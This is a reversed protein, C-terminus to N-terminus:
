NQKLNYQELEYDSLPIFTLSFSRDVKKYDFILIELLKLEALADYLNSVYKKDSSQSLFKEKFASIPINCLYNSYRSKIRYEQLFFLIQKAIPNNIREFDDKLVSTNKRGKWSEIANFSLVTHIREKKSDLFVSENFIVAGKLADNVNIKGTKEDVTYDAIRFDPMDNLTSIIKSKLRRKELREANSLSPKNLEPNMKLIIDDISYEIYGKNCWDYNLMNYIHMSILQTESDPIILKFYDSYDESYQVLENKGIEESEIKAKPPLDRAWFVRKYIGEEVQFDVYFDLLGKSNISCSPVVNRNFVSLLGTEPLDYTDKENIIDILLYELTTLIHPIQITLSLEGFFAFDPLILKSKDGLWSLCVDKSYENYYAANSFDGNSVKIKLNNKKKLISKRLLNQYDSYSKLSLHKYLECIVLKVLLSDDNDSIFDDPIEIEESTIECHISLYKKLKSIDKCFIDNSQKVLDSHVSNFKNFIREVSPEFKEM